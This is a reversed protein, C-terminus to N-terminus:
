IWPRFLPFEQAAPRVVQVASWVKFVALPEPQFLADHDRGRPALTNGRTVINEICRGTRVTVRISPRLALKM